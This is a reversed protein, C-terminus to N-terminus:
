LSSFAEAAKELEDSVSARQGVIRQVADGLIDALDQRHTIKITTAPHASSDLYGLLERQRSFNDSAFYPDSNLTSKRTPLEGGVKADILEAEKSHMFEIFQWAADRKSESSMCLTWGGETSAPVPESSNTPNPLSTSALGDKSDVLASYESWQSSHHWSSALAGGKFRRVEAESDMTLEDKPSVGHEYVLDQLWQFIQQGAEKHFLPQGTDPDVLDSGMAWYLSPITQMVRNLNDAKSMPMAFGHVRGATLEKLAQTWDDIGGPPTKMGITNFMSPRYFQLNAVRISQRFGYKKGDFETDSWDYLFDDRDATSMGDVYEDLPKIAGARALEGVYQDLQRSVDPMQRAASARLLQPQLEDWPVVETKVKIKPYKREFAEIIRAQALTRGDDSKGSEMFTWYRITQVGQSNTSSSADCGALAVGAGVGAAAKLFQRRGLGYAGVTSLPQRHAM